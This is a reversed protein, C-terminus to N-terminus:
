WYPNRTTTIGELHSYDRVHERLMPYSNWPDTLEFKEAKLSARWYERLHRDLMAAFFSFTSSPGLIVDCQSLLYFDPYWDIARKDRTALDRALYTCDALPKQSLQLGLDEVILPSWDKFDDVLSPDETAIFLSAGGFRDRNEELWKLYWSTPIIPFIRRGYDGRRLHIGITREGSNWLRQRAPRLREEIQETPIFLNRLQYKNPAYYSTHYQAHGYFDCGVLENGKPPTPQKLGGGSERYNKFQNQSIPNDKAEFLYNGVWPPIQLEAQYYETYKKLFAYRFFQNASRGLHHFRKMTVVCETM